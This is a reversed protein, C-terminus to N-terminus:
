TNKTAAIFNRIAEVSNELVVAREERNHLDSLWQPLEPFVGTAAKVADPFKAPHACALSVIPANTRGDALAHQAAAVGIATHPDILEGTTQYTTSIIRTIDADDFRYASFLATLSNHMASPVTYQGTARFEQMTTSLKASDGNYADFLLREFNSSVQIDMSPALTPSVGTVAMSGSAFFRTLIDNKNTGIALHEIPLGMKRAVFAAYVNGFNGTPVAFSVPKDPAGLALATSAYYVVQALIRAWNISNIASLNYQKRFPLDNFLAKVIDQCDDFTGKLAINHVNPSLVTTMQRRQVDSVRGHPHLIFIEITSKDRCAEIAASGTDGSTAGVVTIKEGRQQLLYDFLKGLFQLAYDKFALTQGHFLELLWHNHALQKLPAIAPHRFPQYAEVALRELTALPIEDGVFPQMIRAALQPYPLAALSRWEAATFQPFTQPVYLGGDEALGALVVDSFGLIPANGRTSIYKMIVQEFGEAFVRRGM